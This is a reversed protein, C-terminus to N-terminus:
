ISIREMWCALEENVPLLAAKLKASEMPAGMLASQVREALSTDLADTFVKVSSIKGKELSLHLQVEGFSLREEFQVDFPPTAGYLFDWSKRRKSLNEVISFDILEEASHIEGGHAKILAQVVADVTIEPQIECLNIVRAATSTVGKAQLKAKSPQLYRALRGLDSSILMTGHHLSAGGSNMYASGSFKRGKAVIDNRGEHRSEVGLTKLADVCLGYSYDTGSSEPMIFSFLLNGLDHFVAGGGTDRRVPLVGDAKMEDLRCERWINQNRGIIVSPQNIWLYLLPRNLMKERLPGGVKCAAFLAEEISLNEYPNNGSSLVIM